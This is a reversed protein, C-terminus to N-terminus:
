AAPAPEPNQELLRIRVPRGECNLKFESLGNMDSFRAEPDGVFSPRSLKSAEPLLPLIKKGLMVTLECLADEVDEESPSDGEVDFLMAAAHRVVSESCELLIAGQWSGSVNIFSCLVNEDPTNEQATEPQINLGLQTSWLDRSHSLVQNADVQM